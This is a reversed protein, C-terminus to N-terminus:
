RPSVQTVSAAGYTARNTPALGRRIAVVMCGVLLVFVMVYIGMRRSLEYGGRRLQPVFEPGPPELEAVAVVSGARLRDYRLRKSPDSLVDYAERIELLRRETRVDDDNSQYLRTLMRFQDSIEEAGSEPRVGLAAYHDM